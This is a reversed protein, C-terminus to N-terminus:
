CGQPKFLDVYCNKLIICVTSTKLSKMSRFLLNINQVYFITCTGKSEIVKTKVELTERM